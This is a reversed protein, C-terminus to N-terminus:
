LIRGGIGLLHHAPRNASTCAWGLIISRVKRAAAEEATEGEVADDKSKRSRKGTTRPPKQKPTKITAVETGGTEQQQADQACVRAGDGAEDEGATPPKKGRGGKAARRRPTTRGLALLCAPLQLTPVFNGTRPPHGLALQRSWRKPGSWRLSCRKCSQWGKTWANWKAGSWPKRFRLGAM